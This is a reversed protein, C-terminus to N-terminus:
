DLIGLSRLADPLRDLDNGSIEATSPLGLPPNTTSRIVLVAVGREVAAKLERQAWTSKLWSPSVVVVIAKARDLMGDTASILSSSAAQLQTADPVVRVGLKSLESRIHEALEEDASSTSLFVVPRGGAATPQVHEGRFDFYELEQTEVGRLPDHNGPLRNLNELPRASQVPSEKTPPESAPAGKLPAEEEFSLWHEREETSGDRLHLNMFITFQGWGSGKLRFGSARDEVRHIPNPFTPHLHYTVAELEDLDGEQWIAWEWRRDSARKASHVTEIPM